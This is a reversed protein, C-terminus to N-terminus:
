NDNPAPAPARPDPQHADRFQGMVEALGGHALQAPVSRPGAEAARRATEPAEQFRGQAYAARARDVPARPSEGTTARREQAAATLATISVVVVIAVARTVGASM